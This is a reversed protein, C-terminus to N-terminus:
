HIRHRYLHHYDMTAPQNQAAFTQPALILGLLRMLLILSKKM